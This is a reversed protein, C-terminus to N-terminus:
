PLVPLSIHLVAASTPPLLLKMTWKCVYLNPRANTQGNSIEELSSAALQLLACENLVLVPFILFVQFIQPITTYDAIAVTTLRVPAERDWPPTRPSHLGGKSPRSSHSPPTAVANGTVSTNSPTPPALGLRQPGVSRGPLGRAAWSPPKFFRAPPRLAEFFCQVSRNFPKILPAESIM